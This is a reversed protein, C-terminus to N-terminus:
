DPLTTSLINWLKNMIMQIQKHQTSFSTVMSWKYNDDQERRPKAVLLSGREFDLINQLESDIEVSDYGKDLFRQRLVMCKSPRQKLVTYAYDCFSVLHFLAFGLDTIAVISPSLAM